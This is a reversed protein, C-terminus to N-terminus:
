LKCCDLGCMSYKAEFLFAGVEAIVPDTLNQPRYRFWNQVPQTDEWVPVLKISAVVEFFEAVAERATLGQYMETSQGCFGSWRPLM